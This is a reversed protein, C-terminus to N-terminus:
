QYIVTYGDIKNKLEEMSKVYKYRMNFVRDPREGVIYYKVNLDPANLTVQDSIRMKKDSIATETKELKSIVYLNNEKAWIEEIDIEHEFDSVEAEVVITQEEANGYKDDPMDIDIYPVEVEEEEMVIVVKPIEVTKTTTGINVDAWAIDYEPLEGAETEVDIDVTPLEGEKKKEINCAFLLSAVGLVCIIKKM